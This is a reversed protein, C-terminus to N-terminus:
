QALLKGLAEAKELEENSPTEKVALTGVVNFKEKSMYEQWNLMFEGRDWGYSGFIVVPKDGVALLRVEKLFPALEKQEIRNNDMSTSGFAVADSNLVDEPTAESVLKLAVQAGAESAGKAISNALVEVNGMNSYYIITVKKM